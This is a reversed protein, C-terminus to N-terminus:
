YVLIERKVLVPNKQFNYKKTPRKKQQVNM